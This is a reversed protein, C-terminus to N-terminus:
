DEKNPYNLESYVEIGHQELISTTIGNGDILKGTFTGDYIKGSGCSPSKAKLIAHTINYKKAIALSKEAGKQFADTVDEGTKTVVKLGDETQIIEAPTRPTPLGGMVEPCVLIADENELLAKLEPKLNDKGDYRCAEGALCASILYKKKM